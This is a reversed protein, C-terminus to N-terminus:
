VGTLDFSNIEKIPFYEILSLKELNVEFSTFNNKVIEVAKSLDKVNLALTCHPVWNDPFYHENMSPKVDCFIESFRSHVNLLEKTMVPALFIVNENTPFLGIGSLILKMENLGKCFTKLKEEIEDPTIDKFIGLSIHPQIFDFMYDSLNDKSILKAISSIKSISKEDLVLIVAYQM